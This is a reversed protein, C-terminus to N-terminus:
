IINIVEVNENEKLKKIIFRRHCKWYFREACMICVVDKNILELLKKFGKKFEETNMYNEYGGERFGGLEEIHVYKIDHKGLVNKLNEKNFWPFKKSTPFRRVDVLIKINHKKLLNLFDNIERNSHGITFVLKKM